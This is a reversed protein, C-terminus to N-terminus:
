HNGAGSVRADHHVHEINRRRAPRTAPARSCADCVGSVLVDTRVPTFHHLDQLHQELESVLGDEIHLVGQCVQCIAHHHVESALEYHVPGAGLRVAHVAGSGTLADLARYVTSRALTPDESQVRAAIEDATCHHGLSRLAEYVLRRQRTQRLGTLGPESRM